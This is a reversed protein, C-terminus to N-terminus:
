DFVLTPPPQYIRVFKAVGINIAINILDYHNKVGYITRLKDCYKQIAAESRDMLLAIEERNFGAANLQLYTIEYDKLYAHNKAIIQSTSLRNKFKSGDDELM